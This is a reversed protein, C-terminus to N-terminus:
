EIYKWDQHNINGCGVNGIDKAKLDKIFNEFVEVKKSEMDSSAVNVVVHDGMTGVVIDIDFAIPLTEVFLPVNLTILDPLEIPMNEKIGQIEATCIIGNISTKGFGKQMVTSTSVRIQSMTLALDKAIPSVITNKHLLVFQSFEGIKITGAKLINLWPAVLPHVQPRFTIVEFGKTAEDNFVARIEQREMDALILTTETKNKQLYAIFAGLGYFVHSRAQSEQREPTDIKNNLTMTVKKTGDGLIEQALEITNTKGKGVNRLFGNLVDEKIETESM